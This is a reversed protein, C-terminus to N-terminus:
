NKKSKKFWDVFSKIGSEVKFRIKYKLFNLIKKNDGHTKFVDGKQKELYIKKSKTGLNKEILNVYTNLKVAKGYCINFIDHKKLSSFNKNTLRYILNAVDDIYTFDRYHNGNNFLKIHNKKYINKTFNFLAMDPRGLPGYVTFFRLGTFKTDCMKSYCSAIIENCKKTAAYFSVQNDTNDTEKNPFSVSEGYVSSSSAYIFHKVNKHLCIEMLNFFAEINNKFYIKRNSFSLRVGPQAALHIINDFTNKYFLFNLKKKNLLDLKIFKFNKNKKLLYIRKKKVSIDYYNSYNDLGFVSFNKKLFYNSVHYGIFGASGTVLIKKKM